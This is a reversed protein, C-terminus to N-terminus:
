RGPVGWTWSLHWNLNETLAPWLISPWYLFTLLCINISCNDDGPVATPIKYMNERGIKMIVGYFLSWWYYMKLSKEPPVITLVKGKLVPPTPRIGPQSAIIGCVKTVLFGYCLIFHYPLLNFLFKLFSGCKFFFRLFFSGWLNPFQHESFNVLKSLVSLLM